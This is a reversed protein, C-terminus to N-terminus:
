FRAGFTFSIRPTIGNYGWSAENGDYMEDPGSNGGKSLVYRIGGGVNVDFVLFNSIVLKAGAMTGAGITSYIFTKEESIYYQNPWSGYYSQNIEMADYYRTNVYPQFYVQFVSNNRSSRESTYFRAGLEAYLGKRDVDEREKLLPSFVVNISRRGSLYKEVELHYTSYIFDFPGFRVEMDKNATDSQSNAFHSSFICILVFLVKKM